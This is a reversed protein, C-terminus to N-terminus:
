KIVKAGLLVRQSDVSLPPLLFFKVVSGSSNRFGKKGYEDPHVLYRELQRFGQKPKLLDKIESHALKAPHVLFTELLGDPTLHEYDKRFIEGMVLRRHLMQNEKKQLSCNNIQISLKNKRCFRKIKETNELSLVDYKLETEKNLIFTDALATRSQPDGPVLIYQHLNLYNVNCSDLFPLIEVVKHYDAPISPIEVAVKEFIATAAAIKELISNSNYNVAAVNFRIENLGVRALKAMKNEDAPLGSTYAWYYIDPRNKRFYSLWDVLRDFVLLCDGGSFSIADFSGSEIGELIEAPSDGFASVIKDENKFPSPCFSCNAPCLYTLFICLWKGQQCSQCGKSFNDRFELQNADRVKVKM